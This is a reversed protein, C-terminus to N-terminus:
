QPPKKAAFEDDYDDHDHLLGLRYEPREEWM